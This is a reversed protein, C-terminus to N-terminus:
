RPGDNVKTLTADQVNLMLNMRLGIPAAWGKISEISKTLRTPDALDTEMKLVLDAKHDAFKGKTGGSANLESLALFSVQGDSDGRVNVMWMCLKKLEGMGWVDRSNGQLSIGQDIFSSISDFVVLTKRETVNECLHEILAQVSAGFGVDVLHWTDPPDTRLHTMVRRAILQASMEASMYFVEWGGYLAAALSSALALYSKAAGPGGSIITLGQFHTLEGRNDCIGSSWHPSGPLAAVAALDPQPTLPNETSLSDRLVRRKWEVPDASRVAELPWVPVFDATTGGAACHDTADKGHRAEVIRVSRAIGELKKAVDAAHAQGQPDKDRVITVEAGALSRAHHPAFKGAGGSNCTAVLGHARLTDCDKEGEAIWVPDRAEVAALVEPLRYLLPEVGRLNWEFGGQGDPRRQLFAKPERRVVQYVIRGDADCYDYIAVTKASQAEGIARIDAGHQTGCACPGRLRHPYTEGGGKGAHLAIGGAHEPRTCHAYDGDTSTYGHCRVGQGRGARDFGKCIPCATEASLYRKM